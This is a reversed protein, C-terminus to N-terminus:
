RWALQSRCPQTTCAASINWWREDCMWMTNALTRRPSHDATKRHTEPHTANDTSCLVAGRSVLPTGAALQTSHAKGVRLRRITFVTLAVLDLETHACHVFLHPRECPAGVVPM